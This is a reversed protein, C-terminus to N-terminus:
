DPKFTLGGQPTRAFFGSHEKSFEQGNVRITMSFSCKYGAPEAVVTCEKKSFSKFGEFGPLKQGTAASARALGRQVDARISEGIVAQMENATPEGPAGKKCGPLAALALLLALPLIRRLTM